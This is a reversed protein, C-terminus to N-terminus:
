RREVRYLEDRSWNWLVEASDRRSELFPESIVEERMDPTESQMRNIRCRSHDMELERAFRQLSGGTGEVAM